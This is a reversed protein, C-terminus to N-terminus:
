RPSWVPYSDEYPSNTINMLNTGDEDMVYIENNGDRDSVFAIKGKGSTDSGGCGALGLYLPLAYKRVLQGLNMNYNVFKAGKYSNHFELSDTILKFIFSQQGKKQTEVGVDGASGREYSGAPAESREM